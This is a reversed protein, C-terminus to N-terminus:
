ISSASYQLLQDTTFSSRDGGTNGSRSERGGITGVKVGKTCKGKRDLSHICASPRSPKFFHATLPCRARATFTSTLLFLLPVCTGALMGKSVIPVQSEEPSSNRCARPWKHSSHCNVVYSDLVVATLGTVGYGAIRVRKRFTHLLQVTFSSSVQKNEGLM